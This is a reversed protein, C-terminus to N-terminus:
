HVEMRGNDRDPTNQTSAIILDNQLRVSALAVQSRPHTQGSHAFHGAPGAIVGGDVSLRSRLWISPFARLGAGAAPLPLREGEGELSVLAM